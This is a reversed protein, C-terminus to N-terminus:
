LCEQKKQEVEQREDKNCYSKYFITFVIILHLYGIYLSLKLIFLLEDFKIKWINLVIVIVIM